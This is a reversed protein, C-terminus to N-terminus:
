EQKGKEISVGAAEADYCKMPNAVRKNVIFERVLRPACLSAPFIAHAHHKFGAFQVIKFQAAALKADENVTQFDYDANLVLVPLSAPLTHMKDSQAPLATKQVPCSDIFSNYYANGGRRMGWEAATFPVFANPYDQDYLKANASFELRRQDVTSTRKWPVIWDQCTIVMNLEYGVLWDDKAADSKKMSLKDAALADLHTWDKKRYAKLLAAVFPLRWVQPSTEASEDFQPYDVTLGALTEVDLRFPQDYYRDSKVLADLPRPAKRLEEAAWSLAQLVEDTKCQGGRDCFQQVQRKMAAYHTPMFPAWTKLPFAGDLGLTRIHKPFLSTYVASLNTGYSFAYLDLEAIGLAQRVREFDRATNETTFHHANAGLQDACLSSQLNGAEVMLKRNATAACKLQTSLGIGRPDVFLLSRDYFMARVPVLLASGGSKLTDTIPSGPGGGIMQLTPNSGFGVEPFYVFGVEVTKGTPDNYDLPAIVVGCRAPWLAEGCSKEVLRINLDASVLAHGSRSFRWFAAGGIVLASLVVASLIKKWLVM